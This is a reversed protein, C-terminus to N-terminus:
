GDLVNLLKDQGIGALARRVDRQWKKPMTAFTEPLTTQKGASVLAKIVQEAQRLDNERKVPKQRRGSILLKLLAFRAPHPVVVEVDGFPLKLSDRCLFDMFRLPQANVGLAQLKNEV